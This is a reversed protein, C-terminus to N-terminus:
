EQRESRSYDGFCDLLISPKVQPNSGCGTKKIKKSKHNVGVKVMSDYKETRAFPYVTKLKMNTRGEKEYGAIIKQISSYNVGYNTSIDQRSMGLNKFGHIM